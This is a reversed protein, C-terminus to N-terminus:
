EYKMVGGRRKLLANLTKERRCKPDKDIYNETLPAKKIVYIKQRITMFASGCSSCKVMDHVVIDVLDDINDTALEFDRTGRIANVPCVDICRWCYICRGIFYKIMRQGNEEILELANPPCALVCAGCGICKEEDIEIRGRFEDTILPEAFPYKRTVRGAKLAIELAKLITSRSTAPKDESM